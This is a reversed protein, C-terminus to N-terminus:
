KTPIVNVLLVSVTKSGQQPVPVIGFATYEKFLFFFIGGFSAIADIHADSLNLKGKCSQVSANAFGSALWSLPYIPSNTMKIKQRKM